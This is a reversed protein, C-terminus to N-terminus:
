ARASYAIGAGIVAVIAYKLAYHAPDRGTM